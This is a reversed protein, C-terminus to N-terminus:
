VEHKMFNKPLFIEDMSKNFKQSIIYMENMKFQSIGNEKNIYTRLDINLLDAMNQLTLEHYKRLRRLENTNPMKDVGKRTILKM